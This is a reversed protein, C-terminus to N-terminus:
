VIQKSPNIVALDLVGMAIFIKMISGPTYLGNIARNLFPYNKNNVWANIKKSDSGDTMVQSSYEPFNSIALIEGTAIDLLSENLKRQLNLDISLPLNDGDVPKQIVSESVINGKVDTEIIKIGNMGSLITDYVKELGDIPDYRNQYYIGSSDKSPYKVYGLTTSLGTSTAYIRLSFDNTQSNIANWVIPVNNRDYIVGRDAFIITNRLNNNDSRIRFKEGEVVQLNWLKYVFVIGILFLFIVLFNFVSQSIPREMRGEFQNVDFAPLNKSDLFIEDPDIDKNKTPNKRKLISRIKNLM